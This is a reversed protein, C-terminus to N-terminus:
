IPKEPVRRNTRREEDSSNENSGNFSDDADLRSDPLTNARHKEISKKFPKPRQPQVRLVKGLGLSSPQKARNVPSYKL